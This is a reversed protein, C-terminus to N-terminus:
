QVRATENMRINILATSLMRKKELFVAKQLILEFNLWVSSFLHGELRDWFTEDLWIM